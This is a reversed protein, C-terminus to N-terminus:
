RMFKRRIALALLAAQVPGLITEYLVFIKARKNAPPPEPKQLAMVGASYVLAEPLTLSMAVTSQQTDRQSSESVTRGTQRPQWWTANGSWYIVAFLLRISLLAGFAGQVGEGYDSLLWYWWSLRFLDVRRSRELRKFDIAMYRFDAAEECRNNEEANVALQRFAIELLPRLYGAQNKELANIEKRVADRKDLFGWNVSIFNFKRPDVNIFWHPRLSVTHFTVREPKEFIAAALSLLVHDAFQNENFSIGDKFRTEDLLIRVTKPKVGAKDDSSGAADNGKASIEPRDTEIFM